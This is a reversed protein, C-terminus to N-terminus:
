SVLRFCPGYNGLAPRSADIPQNMLHKGLAAMAMMHAVSEGMATAGGGNWAAELRELMATYAQDFAHIPEWIGAPVEEQLYGGAPIDAMPYVAPFPVVEGHFGWEEAANRALRTGHQIEAFRYYHGPAAPGTGVALGPAGEGQRIIQEICQHVDDLSALISLDLTGGIQDDTRLEPKLRKFTKWIAEYVDPITARSTDRVVTAAIKPHHTNEIAMFVDLTSPTLRRLALPLDPRLGCPLPGPYVPVVGSSSLDPAGGLAALMNCAFGMHSMEERVIGMVTDRVPDAEDVVSWAATLYLPITCFEVQIAAQLARKLWRLDRRSEKLLTPLPGPGTKAEASPWLSAGVGVIGIKLLQRRLVM